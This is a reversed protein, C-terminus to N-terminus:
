CHKCWTASSACSRTPRQQQPIVKACLYKSITKGASMMLTHDGAHKVQNQGVKTKTKPDPDDVGPQSKYVPGQTSVLWYCNVFCTKVKSKTFEWSSARARGIPPSCVRPETRSQKHLLYWISTMVALRDKRYRVQGVTISNMWWGLCCHGEGITKAGESSTVKDLGDSELDNLGWFCRYCWWQRCLILM